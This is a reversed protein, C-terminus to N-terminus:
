RYEVKLAGWSTAVAVPATGSAMADLAPTSYLAPTNPMGDVTYDATLQLNNVASRELAVVLAPSSGGQGTAVHLSMETSSMSRTAHMLELRYSAGQEGLALVLVAERNWNVGAPLMEEAVAQGSEVMESNWAAWAEPSTLVVAAPALWASMSYTELTRCDVARRSREAMGARPGAAVSAVNVAMTLAMAVMTATRTMSRANM